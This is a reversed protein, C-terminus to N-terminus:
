GNQLKAITKRELGLVESNGANAQLLSQCHDLEVRCITIKDNVSKLEGHQLDKLGRKIEKLM